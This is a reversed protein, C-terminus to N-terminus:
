ENLDVAIPAQRDRRPGEIVQGINGITELSKELRKAQRSGSSVAVGRAFLEMTSDTLGTFDNIIVELLVIDNLALNAHVNYFGLGLSEERSVPKTGRELAEGQKWGLFAGRLKMLMKNDLVLEKVDNM